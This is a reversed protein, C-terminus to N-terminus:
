FKIKGLRGFCYKQKRKEYVFRGVELIDCTTIPYFHILNLTEILCMPRMLGQAGLRTSRNVRQSKNIKNAKKTLKAIRILKEPFSLSFLM